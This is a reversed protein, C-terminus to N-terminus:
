FLLAEHQRKYSFLREGTLIHSQYVCASKADM